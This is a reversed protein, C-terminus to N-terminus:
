TKRRFDQAAMVVALKRGDIFGSRVCKGSKSFYLADGIKALLYSLSEICYDSV